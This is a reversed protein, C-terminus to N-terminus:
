RRRNAWHRWNSRNATRLWDAELREIAVKNTKWTVVAVGGEAVPWAGSTIYGCKNMALVRTSGIEWEGQRDYHAFFALKPRAESIVFRLAGSGADRLRGETFLGTPGDHSIFIDISGLGAMALELSEDDSLHYRLHRCKKHSGGAIGSIGAVRVREDGFGFTWIRGSRLASIKGDDSVPYIAGIPSVARDREELFLFDEHNGPIFVTLPRPDLLTAPPNAGAYEAFGLEEPDSDKRRTTARDLQSTALFAGMDGCQLILDIKSGTEIQWKGLIAYTLSLHGHIDGVVAINM